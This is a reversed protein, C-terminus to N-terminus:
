SGSLYVSDVGRGPYTSEADRLSEQRVLTESEGAVDHFSYVSSAFFYSATTAGTEEALDGHFSKASLEADFSRRDYRKNQPQSNQVVATYNVLDDQLAGAIIAPAM